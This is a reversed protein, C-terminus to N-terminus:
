TAPKEFLNQNVYHSDSTRPYVIGNGFILRGVLGLLYGAMFAYLIQLTFTGIDGRSWGAIHGASASFAGLLYPNNSQRVLLEDIFRLALAAVVAYFILMFYAGNKGGEHFGHGVIGPGWTAKTGRVRSSKPLSYGLGVPKEPWYARPMPMTVVYFITHFPAPDLEQTYLHIAALSTQAANQGVLSKSAKGPTLMKSPLLKLAEISTALTRAQKEGQRDFHRVQSYAAVTLLVVFGAIGLVFSSRLPSTYRLRLWYYAIPIGMCIGLLTRRGGGSKIAIIMALLIVGGLIGILIPNGKQQYWACFALVVSFVIAKNGLQSTIQALGVIPPPFISVLAAAVTLGLMLYLVAMNAPPWKRFLSGAAKRPLKLWHYALALTGYFTVAGMMFHNYDSRTYELIKFEESATGAKLAALGVFNISGLLFVNWSTLLDSKRRFYPVAILLLLASIFIYAFITLNDAPSM